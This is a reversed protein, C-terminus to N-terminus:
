QRMKLPWIDFENVLAKYLKSTPLGMVNYYCGHIKSVKSLGIWEQIGYSGAKDMPKYNKIYYNMESASIDEMIVETICKFIVKNELSRLCVGTVVLHKRNSLEGLMIEAEQKDAPKNLIKENSIVVTDATILVEGIQLNKYALSKKEALFTAVNQTEIGNFDENCTIEAKTFDYGLMKLLESRRPSNSGLLIKM